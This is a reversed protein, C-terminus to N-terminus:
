LNSIFNNQMLDKITITRADYELLGENRMKNLERSLSSRQIGLKEALIKKSSKLKIVNSKQVHYEYKLFDIISARITKLSLMEIKDVLISTTDSIVKMMNVMFHMDKQCMNLISEKRIQLITSKSTAAVTMPYHNRSSFLLNAGIIDRGYFVNIILTNGNEDIKQV